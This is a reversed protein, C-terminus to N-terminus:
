RIKSHWHDTTIFGEVAAEDWVLELDEVLKRFPNLDGSILDHPWIKRWWAGCLGLAGAVLSTGSRACGTVFIPREFHNPNTPHWKEDYATKM